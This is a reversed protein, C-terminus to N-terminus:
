SLIDKVCDLVASSISLLSSSSKLQTIANEIEKSVIPIMLFSNSNRNKLYSAANKESPSVESVLKDLLILFINLSNIRFLKWM